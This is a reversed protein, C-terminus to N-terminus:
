VELASARLCPMSCWPCRYYVDNKQLREYAKEVYDIPVIESRCVINKQGCFDLMEQLGCQLRLLAGVHAEAATPSCLLCVCRRRASAM